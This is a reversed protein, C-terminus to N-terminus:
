NGGKEDVTRHVRPAYPMSVVRVCGQAAVLPTPYKGFSFSKDPFNVAGCVPCHARTDSYAYECVRCDTM